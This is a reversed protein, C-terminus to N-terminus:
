QAKKEVLIMLTTIMTLRYAVMAASEDWTAGADTRVYSAFVALLGVFGVVLGPAAALRSLFTGVVTTDDAVASAGGLARKAGPDTM